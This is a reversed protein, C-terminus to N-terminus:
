QAGRYAQRFTAPPRGFHRRFAKSFHYHDAYGVMQGVVSVKLDTDQLLMAARQLRVLRLHSMVTAGFHQKYLLCLQSVSFGAREALEPLRLPQQYHSDLHRRLELLAPPIRPRAPSYRLARALRHIISVVYNRALMFDLADAGRSPRSVENYLEALAPDFFSLDHLPRPTDLPFEAERLARTVDAGKVSLWSHNWRREAHGLAHPTGPRWCIMTGPPAVIESTGTRCLAHDYFLVFLYSPWGRPRDFVQPSMREQVGLGQVRLAPTDVPFPSFHSM